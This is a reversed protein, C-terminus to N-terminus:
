IITLSERDIGVGGCLNAIKEVVTLLSGPDLFDDESTTIEEFHLIDFRARCKGIRAIKKMEDGTLTTTRFQENLEGVQELVEEGDVYTIDMGAFDSPSVVTMSELQEDSDKHIEKIEYRDGLEAIAAIFADPSPRQDEEFLIFYTERVQFSPTGFLSM